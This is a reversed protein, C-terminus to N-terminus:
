RNQNATLIQNILNLLLEMDLPKYLCTYANNRVADQVIDDVEHRFGTIFIAIIQPNIEKIRLYTELGNITPLKIDILILDYNNEKVLDIAEEGSYATGVIYSKKILINKLTSSFEPDDDVIMIFGGKRRERATEITSLVKDFDLPKYLVGYAGEVLAEQILEEVSYATMMIAVTEPRIKKIRKYTEVGDMFPLKIDIFIINFSKEKVKDIAEIGDKAIDVNFGKRKLIFSM